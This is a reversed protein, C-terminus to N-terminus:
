VSVKRYFSEGNSATGIKELQGFTKLFRPAIRKVWAASLGDIQSEPGWRFSSERPVVWYAVLGCYESIGFQAHQNEAVVHDERGIWSDAEDVSPWMDRLTYRFDDILDDFAFSTNIEGTGGCDICDARDEASLASTDDSCDCPVSSEIHTYAVVAANTPTSVSRGM